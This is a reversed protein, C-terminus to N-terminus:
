SDTKQNSAKESDALQEDLGWALARHRAENRAQEQLTEIQETNDLFAAVADDENPTPSCLSDHDTDAHRAAQKRTRAALARDGTLYTAPLEPPVTLAEMDHVSQLQETSLAYLDIRCPGVDDFAALAQEGGIDADTHYVVVPIGREFTFVGTETAQPPVVVVYGTLSRDLAKLLMTRVDSVVRSRLLQGQPIALETM